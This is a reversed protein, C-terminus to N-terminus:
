ETLNDPAVNVFIRWEKNPSGALGKEGPDLLAYNPTINKLLGSRFKPKNIELVDM